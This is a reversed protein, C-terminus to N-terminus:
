RQAARGVPKARRKVPAASKRLGRRCGYQKTQIRRRMMAHM